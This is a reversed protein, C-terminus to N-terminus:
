AARAIAVSQWANRIRGLKQQIIKASSLPNITSFAYMRTCFIFQSHVQLGVPLVHVSSLAFADARWSQHIKRQRQHKLQSRLLWCLQQQVSWKVSLHHRLKGENQGEKMRKAFTANKSAKQMNWLLLTARQLQGRSGGLQHIRAKVSLAISRLHLLTKM